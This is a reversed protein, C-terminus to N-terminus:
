KLALCYKYFLLCDINFQNDAKTKIESLSLYRWM